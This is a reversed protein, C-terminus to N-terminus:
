YLTEEWYIRQHIAVNELCKNLLHRLLCMCLSPEWMCTHSSTRSYTQGGQRNGRQQELQRGAYNHLWDSSTESNISPSNGIKLQMLQWPEQLPNMCLLNIANCRSLVKTMAIAIAWDTLCSPAHNALVHM